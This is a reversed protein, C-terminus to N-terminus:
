EITNKKPPIRLFLVANKSMPTWKVYISRRLVICISVTSFYTILVLSRYEDNMKEATPTEQRVTGELQNFSYIPRAFIGLDHLLSVCITNLM